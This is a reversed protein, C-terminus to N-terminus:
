IVPGRILAKFFYFGILSSIGLKLATSAITGTFVGLGAKLSLKLNRKFVLEGLVAGIFAGILFGFPQFFFLGIILGLASGWVAYKSAGYKKPLYVPLAYDLVVVILTIIGIIILFTTSFAKWNYAWSLLILSIYSIPPGPLIPIICGALGAIILIIGLSILVISM